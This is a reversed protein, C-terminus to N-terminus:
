CILESHNTATKIQSKWKEIHKDAKLKSIRDLLFCRLEDVTWNEGTPVFIIERKWLNPVFGLWNWWKEKLDAKKLVKYIKGNVM